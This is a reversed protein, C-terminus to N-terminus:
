EDGIENIKEVGLSVLGLSVVVDWIYGEFLYDKDLGDTVEGL